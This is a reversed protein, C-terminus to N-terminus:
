MAFQIVFSIGRALLALFCSDYRYATAILGISQDLGNGYDFWM